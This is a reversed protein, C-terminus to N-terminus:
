QAFRRSPAHPQAEGLRDGIRGIQQARRLPEDSIEDRTQCALVHTRPLEIESKMPDVAPDLPDPEAGGARAAVRAVESPKELLPEVGDIGPEPDLVHDEGDKRDLRQRGLLEVHSAM